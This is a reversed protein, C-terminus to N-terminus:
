LAKRPPLALTAVLLGGVLALAVVAVDFATGVATLVDESLFSTVSRFGLSGPVLLLLGPLVVIAAPRDRFRAFANGCLGLVLAGAAAGEAPGLRPSALQVTAYTIVAAVAFYPADRWSARLLVALGFLAALFASWVAWPALREGEGGPGVFPALEVLKAGLVAGFGLQLLAMLSKSFRATGSVLHGTAIENMATTLTLGPLLFLVGAITGITRSLEPWIGTALGSLAAATAAAIPLELRSLPESHPTLASLVGVLLGITLAVLAEPVAGGLLIAGGGAVIVHALLSRALPGRPRALIGAIAELGQRPTSRGYAVDNAVGDLDGLRGLDLEGADARMLYTRQHPPEGLAVFIATPTCFFSADTGLGRSLAGGMAELRHAPMGHAHLARVVALLFEGAEGRVEDDSAESM